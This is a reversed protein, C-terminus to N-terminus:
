PLGYGGPDRPHSSLWDQIEGALYKGIASQGQPTPHFPAPNGSVALRISPGYFWPDASCWRHDDLGPVLRLDVALLNGYRANMEAVVESTNQDMQQLLSVMWDEREGVVSFAYGAIAPATDVCRTGVSTPFPNYYETVAM